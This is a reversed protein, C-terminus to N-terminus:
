MNSGNSKKHRRTHPLRMADRALVDLNVSAYYDFGTTAKLTRYAKSLAERHRHDAADGLVADVASRLYAGQEILCHVRYAYWQMLASHKRGPRHSEIAVLADVWLWDLAAIIEHRLAREIPAGNELAAIM